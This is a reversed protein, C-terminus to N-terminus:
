GRGVTAEILGFPETTAHFVEGRDEVGFCAVDFPLHHRNPLSLHIREIEPHAELVAEGMRHLTFQVSPSHHDTFAELLRDRVGGWAAELERAGDVYEWRAAVVTALIRDGTDPLTTFRDRDFGEFASGSSRLVLLDEIGGAHRMGGADGIVEEIRTGGAGRQWAHPNGEGPGPLRQWPHERLRVTAGSVRPYALFHEVLAAGFAPVSDLPREAALAYVVNRMTDTAVLGSNDGQTHVADFDGELMVDVTLDRLEHREPGRSLKVLRVDSKGYRNAGLRAGV